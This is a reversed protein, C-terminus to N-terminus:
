WRVCDVLVALSYVLDNGEFAVAIRVKHMDPVLLFLLVIVGLQILSETTCLGHDQLISETIGPIVEKSTRQILLLEITIFQVRILLLKRLENTILPLCVTALNLEEQDRFLVFVASPMDMTKEM